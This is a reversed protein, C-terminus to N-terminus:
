ASLRQIPRGLYAELRDLYAYTEDLETGTDCFVLDSSCM